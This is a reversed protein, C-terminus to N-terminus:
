FRSQWLPAPQTYTFGMEVATFVIRSAEEQTLVAHWELLRALGVLHEMITLALSARAQNTRPLEGWRAVHTKGKGLFVQMDGKKPRSLPIEIVEAGDVTSRTISPAEDERARGTVALEVLEKTSADVMDTTMPGILRNANGVFLRIQSDAAPDPKIGRPNFTKCALIRSSEWAEASFFFSRVGRVPVPAQGQDEVGAAPGPEPPKAESRGVIPVRLSRDADVATVLVRRAERTVPESDSASPKPSQSQDPGTLVATAGVLMVITGAAVSLLAKERM